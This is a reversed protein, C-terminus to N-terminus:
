YNLSRWFHQHTTSRCFRRAKCHSIRGGPPRAPAAGGEPLDVSFSLSRVDPKLDSKVRSDSNGFRVTAPYIGPRRFIGQALREALPGDRAAIDLVEFQALAAVGKAHTGRLLPRHDQAAAKEQMLLVNRVIEATCVQEASLNPEGEGATVGFYRTLFLM